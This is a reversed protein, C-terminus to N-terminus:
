AAVGKRQRELERRFALFAAFEPSSEALQQADALSVRMLTDYVQEVLAATLSLETPTKPM